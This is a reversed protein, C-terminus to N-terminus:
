NRPIYPFDNLSNYNFLRASLKVSTERLKDYLNNAIAHDIRSVFGSASIAYDAREKDSFVPVAMCKLGISIEENDVAYGNARVKDLEELLKPIDDITNKTLKRLGHSVIINFEEQNSYALLCKGVGTCHLFNRGGVMSNMSISGQQEVKELYILQFDTKGAFHVTEQISHGLHELLPRVENSIMQQIPLANNLHFFKLSLGYKQTEENQRLYGLHHLTNVIGFTTTKALGVAESIEKLSREYQSTDLFLEIVEFAREISQINKTTAM